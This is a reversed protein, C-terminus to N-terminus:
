LRRSWRRGAIDAGGGGGGAVVLYDVQTPPPSVWTGAKKYNYADNISWVGSAIQYPQSPQQIM